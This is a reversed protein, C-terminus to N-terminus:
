SALAPREDDDRQARVRVTIRYTDINGFFKRECNTHTEYHITKHDHAVLIIGEARDM